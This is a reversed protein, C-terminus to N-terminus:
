EIDELYFGLWREPRQELHIQFTLRKGQSTLTVALQQPMLQNDIGSYHSFWQPKLNNESADLKQQLSPWGFYQFSVADLDKFLVIKNTFDIQQETAILLVNQSSVAQYVLDVLNNEKKVTTLRFLEPFDGSFFGSRSSALLSDTSGIFFFSPKKQQDTLVFSHIGELLRQFNELNKATKASQSFQGLEKNWRQSMLSYAYSGTFLLLSLISISIMLEILTFGQYKVKKILKMNIMLGVINM